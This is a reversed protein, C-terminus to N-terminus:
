CPRHTRSFLKDRSESRVKSNGCNSAEFIEKAHERAICVNKKGEGNYRLEDPPKDEGDM